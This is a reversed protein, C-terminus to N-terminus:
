NTGSIFLLHQPSRQSGSTSDLQWHLLCPNLEQDPFIGCAMPCSLGHVVLSAVAILGCVAVLSHGKSAVVLSPGWAAVLVWSLRYM